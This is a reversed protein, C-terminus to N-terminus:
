RGSEGEESDEASEGRLQNWAHDIQREFLEAGNIVTAGGAKAERLLRTEPENVVDLIIHGDHFLDPLTIPSEGEDSRDAGEARTGIPTANIILKAEALQDAIDPPFLEYTEVRTDTKPSVTAQKLVRASGTDRSAIGVHRVRFHRILAYAAARAVAGAGLIMASRRTFKEAYPELLEVIATAESNHGTAEDGDFTITNIIGSGHAEDSLYDVLGSAAERLHGTLYVGRGKLFRISEITREMDRPQARFALVSLDADSADAREALGMREPTEGGPYGLVGVIRTTARTMM